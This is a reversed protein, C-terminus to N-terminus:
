SIHIKHKKKENLHEEETRRMELTFTLLKKKEVPKKDFLDSSDVVV